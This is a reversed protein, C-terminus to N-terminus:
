GPFRGHKRQGLADRTEVPLSKKIGNRYVILRGDVLSNTYCLFKKSRFVDHSLTKPEANAEVVPTQGGLIPVVDLPEDTLICEAQHDSGWGQRLADIKGRRCHDKVANKPQVTTWHRRGVKEVHYTTGAPGESVDLPQDEKGDELVVAALPSRLEIGPVHQLRCSGLVSEPAADDLDNSLDYAANLPSDGFFVGGANDLKNEILM